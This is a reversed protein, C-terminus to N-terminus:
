PTAGEARLAEGPRELRLTISQGAREVEPYYVLYLVRGAPDIRVSVRNSEVGSPTVRVQPDPPWDAPLPARFYYVPTLRRQPEGEVAKVMGAAQSGPFMHAVYKSSRAEPLRHPPTHITLTEPGTWALAIPSQAPPGLRAPFFRQEPDGWLRFSVAVRRGKAQEKHGRRTKLDELCLLYNQADRLAEGLSDGGYLVAAATAQVLASGSASHIATMSGIVAVGGLEDIRWLLPEDLSDCGQMILVPLGALPGQLHSSGPLTVLPRAPALPRSEEPRRPPEPEVPPEPEPEGAELQDLEEEFYTDPTTTRRAYPVDILDQYATHGEYIIANASNALSRIEPSDALKGYFEDVHVGLNKFEEATIRSVTECLPLPKQVGGANAVMLLRPQRGALLRERLLGRAFLVSADALSELPIRGVGLPVVKSLDRPIFPETKVEYHTPPAPQPQADDGAAAPEQTWGTEIELTHQGLSAYDALVLVTKPRLNEHRVLEAADAEAVAPSAARALVLLSGRAVSVLPALWATRGAGNPGEPVRAVVLNRVARAGLAAALKHQLKRRDLVATAVTPSPERAWAPLREADCAAIWARQVGLEALAAATRSPAETPERILLPAARAAALAAGLIVAEPDDAAAVIAERSQGWFRKAVRLSAEAAETGITLVEPSFKELARGLRMSPEPALVIPRRPEALAILWDAEHTPVESLAVVLPVAGGRRLLAAVPAALALSWPEDESVVLLDVAQARALGGAAPGDAAGAAHVILLIAVFVGLLPARTLM